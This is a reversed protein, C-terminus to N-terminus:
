APDNIPWAGEREKLAMLAKDHCEQCYSYMRYSIEEMTRKTYSYGAGCRLCKLYMVPEGEEPEEEPKEAALGAIQGLADLTDSVVDAMKSPGTPETGTMINDRYAGYLACIVGEARGLIGSIQELNTM